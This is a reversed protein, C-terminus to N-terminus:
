FGILSMVAGAFRRFAGREAGAARCGCGDDRPFPGCLVEATVSVAPVGSAAECESTPQWQCLAGASSVECCCTHFRGPSEGECASADDLELIGHHGVEACQPSATWECRGLGGAQECCCVLEDFWCRESVGGAPPTCTEATECDV